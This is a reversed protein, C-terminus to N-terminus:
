GHRFMEDSLDKLALKCDNLTVTLNTHVSLFHGGLHNNSLVHESSSFPCDGSFSQLGLLKLMALACSTGPPGRDLAFDWVRLWNCEPDIEVDVIHM